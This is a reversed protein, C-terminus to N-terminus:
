ARKKAVSTKTARSKTSNAKTSNTKTSNTKRRRKRMLKEIGAVSKPVADSLVECGNKTILVDDEIRVGLGKYKVPVKASGPRDPIYIGPEITLVMGPEFERWSDEIRYDGVDHVDIGLWHSTKHPCFAKYAEEAILEEVNGKLIKLAVLGQVMIRLAAEHPANFHNGPRCQAIAAQNAALVVEYLARQSASFQGSAPFTRTVDAAYHQYECGADILVLDNKKISADNAVYHMVCANAGSGVICPYAPSRAGHRMFEYTLEAELQGETMGPECAKIARIHAQATIEVARRMLAIEKATKYLRLEHLFHKLAVFEGPPRVGGAERKRIDAVWQLLRADFDAYEGLTIYIRERGELLGPVIDDMDAYGFADDVGLMQTAREPGLREGDWRELVEDRDACFLLEQGHERGPALVLLSEPEEFGTLYFFDSDQRFLYQIDRNRRAPAAGPIIAISDPSMMAMLRERRAKFERMPVTTM